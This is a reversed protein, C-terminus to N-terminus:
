SAKRVRKISVVTSRDLRVGNWTVAYLTDDHFRRKPFEDALSYGSGNDEKIQWGFLNITQNM